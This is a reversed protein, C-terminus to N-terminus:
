PTAVGVRASVPYPITALLRTGSGVSSHIEFSGGVSEIRMRMGIVGRGGIASTARNDLEVIDMGIGNDKIEVKIVGLPDEVIQVEIRAAKAYKYANNLAEQIFRYIALKVPKPLNEEAELSEWADLDVSPHLERSVEYLYKLAAVLPHADNFSKLFPDAINEIQKLRAFLANTHKLAVPIDQDDRYRASLGYLIQLLVSALPAIDNHVADAFDRYVQAEIDFAIQSQDVLRSDTM